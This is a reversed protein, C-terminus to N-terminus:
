VSSRYCDISSSGVPGNPIRSQPNDLIARSQTVTKLYEDSPLPRPEKGVRCCDFFSPMAVQCHIRSFLFM